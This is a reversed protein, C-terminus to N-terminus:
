RIFTVIKSLFTISCLVHTKIKELVTQFIESESFFQAVYSWVHADTRTYLVRQERWIKIFSSNEGYKRFTFSLVDLPLRITGHPSVFLCVHHLQYDSKAIKRFRVFHNVCNVFNPIGSLLLFGRPEPGARQLTASHRLVYKPGQHSNVCRKFRLYNQM